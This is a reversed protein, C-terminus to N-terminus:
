GSFGCRVSCRHTTSNVSSKVTDFASGMRQSMMPYFGNRLAYKDSYYKIRDNILNPTLTFPQGTAPDNIRGNVASQLEIVTHGQAIANTVFAKFAKKAASQANYAGDSCEKAKKLDYAYDRIVIDMNRKQVNVCELPLFFSLVYVFASWLPRKILALITRPAQIVGFSNAKKLMKSLAAERENDTLYERKNIESTAFRSLRGQVFWGNLDIYLLNEKYKHKSAELLRYENVNSKKKAESYAVEAAYYENALRILEAENIPAKVPM